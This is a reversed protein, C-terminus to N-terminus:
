SSLVIEFYLEDLESLDGIFDVKIDEEKFKNNRTLLRNRLYSESLQANYTKRVFEKCDVDPLGKITIFLLFRTGILEYFRTPYTSVIHFPGRECGACLELEFHKDRYNSWGHRTPDIFINERTQIHAYISYFKLLREFTFSM